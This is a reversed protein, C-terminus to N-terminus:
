ALDPPLKRSKGTYFIEGNPRLCVGQLSKCHKIEKSTRRWVKIFPAVYRVRFRTNGALAQAESYILKSLLNIEDFDKRKLARKELLSCFELIQSYQEGKLPISPLGTLGKVELEQRALALIWDFWLAAPSSYSKIGPNSTSRHVAIVLALRAAWLEAHPQYYKGEDQYAEPSLDEALLINRLWLSLAKYFNTEEKILLKEESSEFLVPPLLPLEAIQYVYQALVPDVKM